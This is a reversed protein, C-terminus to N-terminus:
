LGLDMCALPRIDFEVTLGLMAGLYMYREKFLATPTICTASKVHYSSVTGTNKDNPFVIPTWFLFIAMHLIDLNKSTARFNNM